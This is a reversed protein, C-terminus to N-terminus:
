RGAKERQPKLVLRGQEVGTILQVTPDKWSNTKPVFVNERRYGTILLKNGRTFWSNELVTKKGDILKSIRENYHIFNLKYFKVDVVGYKTLITVIHKTKNTNLVTGAIRCLEYKPYERGTKENKIIQIIRPEEELSYFNRIGYSSDSVGALEHGSYYFSMSSMEWASYGGQCYKTYYSDIITQKEQEYFKQAAEKTGMWDKLPAIQSEFVKNFSRYKLCIKKDVVEYDKELTLFPKLIASFFKIEDEETLLYYKNKGEGQVCHNEIWKKFYFLRKEQLLTEPIIGMEISKAFNQMTLKEKLVCKSEAVLSLFRDMTKKRQIGKQLNDQLDLPLADFCGAKILNIMQLVSFSNRQYFSMFSDYPRHNIISVIIDSNIGNIAQFGYIIANREIDPLFDVGAKNIDPLEVPIGKFQISGIAKAIKGYDTLSKSGETKIDDNSEEETEESAEEEDGYEQISLDDTDSGSNVSLCACAWYLPNYRTSLYAEQLGVLSYSHSHISSFSYGMQPEIFYDWVYSLFNYRSGAMKGKDFFQTKLGDVQAVLKKALIKRANNAERLSFNSINPDMLLLMLTEQNISNGYTSLLHKELVEVESSTLNKGSMEKYWLSIDKKFKSFREIPSLGDLVGQLRMADNTLSMELVSHPQIKQIGVSGVQTEFQFLDPVMGKNINNWMQENTFDINEIGLYKDYTARLSGQWVIQKDQLLLELCKTLKTEADTRLLDFKLSGLKDSDHMDFATILTKNPARMLSNQALYGNNFIYVSSAHIGRGSILGEIKKITDLLKPYKNITEKFGPVPSVGEINGLCADLSAVMGREISVMSSLSQAEDNNIGLGRAATLIASKLTETKFTITNLVNNEGFEKRLANIVIETKSPDIDLDIDPFDDLRENNLFRWYPLNYELPNIQTIFLLYNILFGGASGRAVGLLSNEWIIETIRQVLNLYASMRQSHFESINWLVDLEANIREFVQEESFCSGQTLLNRQAIGKDINHILYRDQKFPSTIYKKIAPYKEGYEVISSSLNGLEEDTTQIKIEPVIVPRRIDFKEIQQYIKITNEFAESIVQPPLYRLITRIEEESKMYTYQYFSETEREKEEKSNLFAKHVFIDDKDLYHVDSTIIFPINFFRAIRLITENVQKQEDSDSDQMELYCNHQGFVSCMWHVFENLSSSNKTLIADALRGGICATSAIIHGQCKGVIEEVDQYFTPTRLIGKSTYSREWARSSLQRIQEYGINDKALLIFHFFKDTQKYDKEDILYIENGLIIKFFPFKEQIASQIDMAKVHGSLVEHDTIAVGQYGYDLAKNVLDEIKIICDRLKVNSFETHNHLSCFNM